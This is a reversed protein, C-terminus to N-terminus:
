RRGASRASRGALEVPDGVLLHELEGGTAGLDQVQPADLVGAAIVDRDVHPGREALQVARDHRAADVVLGMLLGGHFCGDDGADGVVPALGLDGHDAYGVLDTLGCADEVREGAGCILRSMITWFTEAAAVFRM